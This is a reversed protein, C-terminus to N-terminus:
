KGARIAPIGEMSPSDRGADGTARHSIEPILSINHEGSTLGCAQFSSYDPLCQMRWFFRQDQPATGLKEALGEKVEQVTLAPDLQVEAVAVGKRLLRLLLRPPRDSHEATDTPILGEHCEVTLPFRQRWFGGSQEANTGGSCGLKSPLQRASVPERALASELVLREEHAKDCRRPKQEPAAQAARQAMPPLCMPPKVPNARMDGPKFPGRRSGLGAM